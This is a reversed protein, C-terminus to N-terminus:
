QVLRWQKSPIILWVRSDERQFKMTVNPISKDVAMGGPLSFKVRVESNIQATRESERIVPDANQVEIEPHSNKIFDAIQRRGPEQNNLKLQDSLYDMVGGPRGEKSAKIAETLAKRVLTEDSQRSTMFAKVGFVLALVIVIGIAFKSKSM